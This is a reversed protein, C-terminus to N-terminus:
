SICVSIILNVSDLTRVVSLIYYITLLHHTIFKSELRDVYKMAREDLIPKFKEASSGMLLSLFGVKEKVVKGANNLMPYNFM